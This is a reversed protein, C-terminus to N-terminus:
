KSAAKKPKAKKKQKVTGPAQDEIMKIVEEKTWARVEEDTFKSGDAKKTIKFNKKKYKIYPGWRGNEVSLNDDDWRHIYRNAEKEVKAQILAFCDDLSLNEPDFKRPINVYMNNWKLFPGFRGKGKTIPLGQYTGIPKDALQKAAILEKAQDFNVTFPDTKRGLSIFEDGFKIYPGYRGTNVTVEKDQHTGLLLPLKFLEMADDFTISEISQEPKLNAFRPKEDEKVEERAGIQIMPRGFRSIKAVVSYGTEPDTGLLREGRSRKANQMTEEVTEHFPEYFDELMKTWQAGGSAIDDFQKEIDATFGYNM